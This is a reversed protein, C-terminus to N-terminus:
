TKKIAPPWWSHSEGHWRFWTTAWLGWYGHRFWSWGLAAVPSVTEFRCCCPCCCCCCCCCCCGCGCGCGIQSHKLRCRELKLWEWSRSRNMLYYKAVLNALFRRGRKSSIKKVHIMMYTNEGGNREVLNCKWPWNPWNTETWMYGINWVSRLFHCDFPFIRFIWPSIGLSVFPSSPVYIGDFTISVWITFTMLFASILPLM